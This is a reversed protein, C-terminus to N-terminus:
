CGLSFNIPIKFYQILIFYFYNFFACNYYGQHTSLCHVGSPHTFQCKVGICSLDVTFVVLSVTYNAKKKNKNEMSFIIQHLAMPSSVDGVTLGHFLCKEIKPATTHLSKRGKKKCM